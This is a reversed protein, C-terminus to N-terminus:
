NGSRYHWAKSKVAAWFSKPDNPKIRKRIRERNLTYYKRKFEKEVEKIKELIETNSTRKYKKWFNAKKRKLKVLQHSWNFNSEKAILKIEPAHKDLAQLIWRNLIEFHENPGLAELQPWDYTALTGNFEEPIYNKWKRTYSFM